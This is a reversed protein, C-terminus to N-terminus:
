DESLLKMMEDETDSLTVAAQIQASGGPGSLRFVQKSQTLDNVVEHIETGRADRHFMGTLHSMPVPGELNRLTQLVEQKLAALPNLGFEGLAEPMGRETARLIRHALEYDEKVIETTNRTAALAMTLKLLHTYRREAYFAFRGDTIELVYHYLSESYQRADPTETFAGSLNYYIDSLTQKVEGVLRPDPLSPRPIQRYKKAGYVLIMRSLFGQGGAAPPMSNNLSTPTTCALLNMLTNKLKITSQRTRYEYDDGDWREVLFDLIGLNNQGIFRSFEGAVVAIHHKDAEAVFQAAEDEPANTVEQIDTLSLLGTNQSGLEAAGLFEKAEDPNGQMALVLGQRQGGTDAPAFRVGTSEKLQRRAISMATSKRSAPTGVMLIYQNPWIQMPGFPLWCRRGLAASVNFIASWLHMIRPTETDEVMQM